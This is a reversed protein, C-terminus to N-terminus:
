GNKHMLFLMVYSRMVLLVSKGHSRQPGNVKKTLM